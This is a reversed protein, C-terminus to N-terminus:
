RQSRDVTERASRMAVFSRLPAVAQAQADAATVVSTVDASRRATSTNRAVALRLRDLTLVTNPRAPAPM